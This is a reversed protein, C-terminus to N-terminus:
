EVFFQLHSLINSNELHVDCEKEESMHPLIRVGVVLPVSFALTGLGGKNLTWQRLKFQLSLHHSMTSYYGEWGM